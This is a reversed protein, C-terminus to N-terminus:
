MCKPEIHAVTIHRTSQEGRGMLGGGVGVNTCKFLKGGGVM